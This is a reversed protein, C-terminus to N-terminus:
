GAHPRKAYPAVWPRPSSFGQRLTAFTLPHNSTVILVAYFRPLATAAINGLFSVRGELDLRHALTRLRGEEPGTGAIRLMVTRGPQRLLSLMKLAM